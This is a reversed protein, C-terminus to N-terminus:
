RMHAYRGNKVTGSCHKRDFANEGTLIEYVADNVRDYHGRARECHEPSCEMEECACLKEKATLTIVKFALGHDKLIGFAEEAVTRAITRATLYFFRIEM